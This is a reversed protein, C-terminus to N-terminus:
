SWYWGGKLVKYLVQGFPFPCLHFWNNVSPSPLFLFFFANCLKCLTVQRSKGTMCHVLVRARDRECEEAFCSIM